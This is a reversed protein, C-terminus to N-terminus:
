WPLGGQRLPMDHPFLRKLLEEDKILEHYTRALDNDMAETASPSLKTKMRRVLDQADDDDMRRVRDKRWTLSHCPTCTREVRQYSQYRARPLGLTSAESSHATGLFANVQRRIPQSYYYPSWRALRETIRAWDAAPRDEWGWTELGHCRQCRTRFTWRHDFSRMGTLFNIVQQAELPSLPAQELRRMRTVTQQWKAPTKLLFLPRSRLHCQGCKEEFTSRGSLGAVRSAHVGAAVSLLGAVLSSFLVTALKLLRVPRGPGPGAARVRLSLWLVLGGSIWLSPIVLTPTHERIMEMAPQINEHWQIWWFAEMSLWMSLARSCPLTFAGFSAFALLGVMWRAWWPCSLLPNGLRLWRGLPIYLLRAVALIFLPLAGWKLLVVGAALAHQDVWAEMGDALNFLLAEFDLALVSVLGHPLLFYLGLAAGWVAVHIAARTGRKGEM